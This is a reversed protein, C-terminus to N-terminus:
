REAVVFIAAIEVSVGRPLEAVGIAARSHKGAEGLVDALLESAANIVQPQEGFGPASRVYGTVSAIQEVQDLGAAADVQALLNLACVRAATRAEELDVQDPVRGVHRVEGDVVPVQGAVFVLARGGGIPVTRTPVYSAMAAPAAPLEIGLEKLRHRPSPMQM